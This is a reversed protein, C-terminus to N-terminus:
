LVHEQMGLSVEPTGIPLTAQIARCTLNCLLWLAIALRRPAMAFWRKAKNTMRAKGSQFLFIWGCARFSTSDAALMKNFRTRLMLM